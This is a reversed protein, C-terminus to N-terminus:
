SASVAGPFGLIVPSPTLLTKQTTDVASKKLAWPNRRQDEAAPCHCPSGVRHGLAGRIM